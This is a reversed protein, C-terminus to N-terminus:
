VYRIDSYFHIEQSGFSSLALSLPVVTEFHHINVESLEKFKSNTAFYRLARNMKYDSPAEANLIDQDLIVNALNNAIGAVNTDASDVTGSLLLDKKAVNDRLSYLVNYPDVHVFQKLGPQADNIDLRPTGDPLLM